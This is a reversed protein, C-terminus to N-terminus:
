DTLGTLLPEYKGGNTIAEDIADLMWDYRSVGSGDCTDVGLREFHLWRDPTNVRGVHTHCGIIQAAKIIQAAAVSMKFDTTGGIFVAAMHEWPITIDECGDQAVFALPWAPLELHWHEWCELTRRASGVVDPVTVFLCRDRDPKSRELLSEFARRDFHSFAGNDIAFQSPYGRLRYNTLPTLLQGGIFAKDAHRQFHAASADLLLKM